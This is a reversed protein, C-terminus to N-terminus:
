VEGKIMGENRLRYEILEAVYVPCKRRATASESEWNQITRPPINLHKGFAEQSLGTALRMEKITM